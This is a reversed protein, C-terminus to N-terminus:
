DSESDKVRGTARELVDLMALVKEENHRRGVIQLAIPAGQYTEPTEWQEFVDKEMPSRPVTKGYAADFHAGGQTFESADFRGDGSPFVAGPLDLM